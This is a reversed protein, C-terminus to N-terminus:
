RRLMDAGKPSYLPPPANTSKEKPPPKQKFAGRLLWHRKLGQVMDDTDVLLKNLSTIFNTNAGVQTNLNSAMATLQELPPQLRAVFAALNTNAATLVFGANTLVSSTNTLAVSATALLGNANTSALLMQAYLDPPLAWRGLSGDPDRLSDTIVTLNSLLPRSDALAANANSTLLTLNTLIVTLQNTLAAETERIVNGLQETLAPAEDPPLWYAQTERAPSVYESKELDWVATIRDLEVARNAVRIKDLGQQALKSLVDADIPRLTM